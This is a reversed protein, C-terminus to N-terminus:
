RWAEAIFPSRETIKRKVAEGYRDNLGKENLGSTTITSAKAKDRHDYIIAITDDDRRQVEFGLDDVVLVKAEKASKIEPADDRQGLPHKRTAEVLDRANAWHLGAAWALDATATTPSEARTLMRACIAIAASTKGVGTEGLIALNQGELISGVARRSRWQEVKTVIRPDGRWEPNGFRAYPWNPVTSWAKALLHRNYAAQEAALCDRCLRVSRDPVRASCPADLGACPSGPAVPGVFPAVGVTRATAAVLAAM